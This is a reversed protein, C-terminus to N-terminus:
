LGQPKLVFQPTVPECRKTRGTGDFLGFPHRKFPLDEPQPLNLGKLRGHMPFREVCRRTDDKPMCFAFECKLAGSHSIRKPADTKIRTSAREAKQSASM